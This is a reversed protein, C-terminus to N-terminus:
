GKVYSLFEVVKGDHVRLLDVGRVHGPTGNSGVWHYRWRLVAREGCAFLEETEFTAHPSERFFREFAARIAEEGEYREGDPAPYTNEWVADQSVLEMVSALDHQNIAADIKRITTRTSETLADDISLPQM